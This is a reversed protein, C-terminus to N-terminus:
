EFELRQKLDDYPMDSLHKTIFEIIREAIETGLVHLYGSGTM